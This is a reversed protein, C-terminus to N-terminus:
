SYIKFDAATLIVDSEPMPSYILSFPLHRIKKMKLTELLNIEQWLPEKPKQPSIIQIFLGGAHTSKM